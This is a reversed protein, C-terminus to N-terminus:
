QRASSFFWFFLDNIQLNYFIEERDSTSFLSISAKERVYNAVVTKM